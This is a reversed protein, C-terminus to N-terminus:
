EIDSDRSKLIEAIAEILKQNDYKSFWLAYGSESLKQEEIDDLSTEM